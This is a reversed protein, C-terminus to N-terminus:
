TGEHANREEIERGLSELMSDWSPPAYGTRARLAAGSLSRDCRFEDDPEITVDEKGIMRALRKLLDFKTIPESPLHWLGDLDPHDRLLHEVADAMTATTIGTYVAGRYGRITGRQALFWEILGTKHHTELGVISTRLTLCGPGHVEGLYKTLGYIDHVDCPDEETYNGRDGSFVCDTSVHVLRCGLDRCAGALRHPFLSNIEICPLAEQGERRQKVVGVANVVADPRVRELLSSVSPFDRVDVRAHLRARESGPYPRAFGEGRVTTHVEHDASWRRVMEHGLMGDGGLVVLRM